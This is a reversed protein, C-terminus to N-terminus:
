VRPHHKQDYAQAQRSLAHALSDRALAHHVELEQIFEQTSRNTLPWVISRSDSHAYNALSRPEFSYLLFFPSYGTSLNPTSNYTFALAPLWKAWMAKPGAVYVRLAVELTQNQWETQGDHQPHHSTSLLVSLKLHEM